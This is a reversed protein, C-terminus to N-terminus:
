AFPEMSCGYPGAWEPDLDAILGWRRSTTLESWKRTGWLGECREAVTEREVMNIQMLEALSETAGADDQGNVDKVGTGEARM